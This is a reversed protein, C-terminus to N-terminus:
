KWVYPESLIVDKKRPQPTIKIKKLKGNKVKGEIVTKYPAHLKFDVDWDKPWAPLLIIKKDECQILMSQLATLLNCGHDQDPVWDYNAQWFAPFFAENHRMATRELLGNAAQDTLGLYAQQIENQCWGFTQKHQRHQMTGLAQKMDSEKGIGYLRYPFVAYLEPNEVNMKRDYTEAPAIITQGEVIRTPIDPLETLMRAWRSRQQATTFRKPLTILKPLVYKLGAIEPLPNEAIHWTEISAAPSFFIRGNKRQYHNDYFLTMQEAHPLLINKAFKKDGTYLYYDYMMLTREITGQWYYTTYPCEDAPNDRQEFPTWGYHASVSSGWWFITEPFHAGPHNYYKQTRYKAMDLANAYIDFFCKMMDFDGSAYMPWYPLRTNQWWYGNGWKRYDYDPGDQGEVPIFTWLGGNFKIPFKDRSSCANLYRQLTYVQALKDTAHNKDKIFIHSRGWFEAWWKRHDKKAQSLNKSHLKKVSKEITALWKKGTSPHETISCIMVTHNKSPAKSKLTMKDVSKLNDGEVWAGFTRGLLPHQMKKIYGGLGQLKMNIEFGDNELKRNCHYWVIADKEDVVTDPYMITPYPDPGYLNKFLEGVTTEWSIPRETKRWSEMTITLDKATQSKSEIYIVPNCADVRICIEDETTKIIIESDKLKLRQSFNVDYKFSTKGPLTIRLKGIKCLISNEDWADNKAILIIIDRENETWVNVAIDGNGTPMAANFDTGAKNYVVDYYSVDKIDDISVPNSPSNKITNINQALCACTLVAVQILITIKHKLKM